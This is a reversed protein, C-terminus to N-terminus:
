CFQLKNKCITHGKMSWMGLLYLSGEQSSILDPPYLLLEAAHQILTSPCVLQLDQLNHNFVRSLYSPAETRDQPMLTWTYQQKEWMLTFPYQFDPHLPDGFFVSCVDVVRFHTLNSPYFGPCHKPQSSYPFTPM